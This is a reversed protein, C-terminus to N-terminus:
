YIFSLTLMGSFPAGQYYSAVGQRSDDSANISSIYEEDLLNNLELSLKMEKSQLINPLTYNMRLDLVTAADVEDKNELDTYRSGIYRLMPVMEFSGYRWILGTKVLWEPTDVVQNGDAELTKGAYDVFMKDGMKHTMHMLPSVKKGWRRYHTCFQSSKYGEPHKEIYEKWMSIKTVGTKKLQREM